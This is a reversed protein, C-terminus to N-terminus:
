EHLLSEIHSFDKETVTKTGLFKRLEDTYVYKFDKLFLSELIKCFELDHSYSSPFVFNQANITEKSKVSSYKFAEISKGSFYKFGVGIQNFIWTMLFSPLMYEMRFSVTQNLTFDQKCHLLMIFPYIISYNIFANLDIAINTYLSDFDRLSLDLCNIERSNRFLAANLADNKTNEIDDITNYLKFTTNDFESAATKLDSSCYLCPIGPPNFRQNNVLHRLKFPIHFINHHHKGDTFPNSRIRYFQANKPITYSFNMGNINGEYVVMLKRLHNYCELRDGKDFSNFLETFISQTTKLKDKALYHKENSILNQIKFGDIIPYIFKSYEVLKNAVQTSFDKKHSLVIPTNLDSFNM